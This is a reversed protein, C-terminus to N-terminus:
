PAEEISARLATLAAVIEDNWMHMLDDKEVAEVLELLPNKLSWWFGASKNFGMENMQKRLEDALTM